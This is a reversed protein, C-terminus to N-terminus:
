RCSRTCWLRCSVRSYLSCFADEETSSTFVHFNMSVWQTLLNRTVVYLREVRVAHVLRMIDAVEEVDGLEGAVDGALEELRVAVSLIGLTCADPDYVDV